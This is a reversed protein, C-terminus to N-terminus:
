IRFVQLRGQLNGADYRPPSLSRFSARVQSTTSALDIRSVFTQKLKKGPTRSRRGASDRLTREERKESSVNDDAAEALAMQIVSINIGTLGLALFFVFLVSLTLRLM